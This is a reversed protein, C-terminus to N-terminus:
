LQRGNQGSRKAYFTEDSPVLAAAPLSAAGFYLSTLPFCPGTKEGHSVKGGSVALSDTAQRCVPLKGAM